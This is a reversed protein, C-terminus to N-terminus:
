RKSIYIRWILGLTILGTIMAASWYLTASTTDASALQALVKLINYLGLFCAVSVIILMLANSLNSNTFGDLFLGKDNVILLLFIAVIPLLVGNIAQALIIAPIPKVDALGFLLGIGLIVGWVLRFNRSNMAWNNTESQFFSRATIAAALPATISSTFGAVFLGAAFLAAAWDGVSDSLTSALAQFSFEGEIQMGVLLIAMSILGGILVALSIGIRMERVSQGKSIGSALFLNYPVITTGILGIILLASGNPISPLFAAEFVDYIEFDSQLAVYFFLLGMFAVVTGLVRAILQINGLFLISACVLGVALLLLKSDVDTMLELGAIAGLLNGTQYAACGFAIALFLVMKISDSSSSHYKLSIIEGLSKGSAITVRAAAEQLIITAITSFLLAWLLALQFSAGAKAATTVTGPGIFAASVVSWFLVSSAGKGFSIRKAM